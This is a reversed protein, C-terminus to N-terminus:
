SRGDKKRLFNKKRRTISTKRIKITRITLAETERERGYWTEQKWSIKTPNRTKIRSIIQIRRVKKEDRGKERIVRQNKTVGKHSGNEITRTWAIRKIGVKWYM